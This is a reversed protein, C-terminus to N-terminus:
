TTINFVDSDYKILRVSVVVNTLRNPVQTNNKDKGHKTIETQSCVRACNEDLTKFIGVFDYCM